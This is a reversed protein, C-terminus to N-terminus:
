PERRNSAKLVYGMLETTRAMQQGNRGDLYSLGAGIRALDYRRQRGTREEVQTLGARLVTQQRAESQRIMEAVRALLAESQEATLTAEPHSAAVPQVTAAPAVPAADAPSVPVSIPEVNRGLRVQVPGSSYQVAVGSLGLAGGIALLLAAAAAAAWFYRPPALRRGSGHQPPITWAQLSVRLERLAELEARCGACAAAHQRVGEVTAADAEDYLVELSLERFAECDM